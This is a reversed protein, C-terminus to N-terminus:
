ARMITIIVEGEEDTDVFPNEEAFKHREEASKLVQVRPPSISITDAIGLM